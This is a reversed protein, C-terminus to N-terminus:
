ESCDHFKSPDKTFFNYNLHVKPEESIIQVVYIFSWPGRIWFGLAPRCLHFKNNWTISYSSIFSCIKLYKKKFCPILFFFPFLILPFPFSLLLIVRFSWRFSLLFHCFIKLKKESSLKKETPFNSILHHVSITPSKTLHFQNELSLSFHTM